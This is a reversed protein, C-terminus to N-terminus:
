YLCYQIGWSRTTITRTRRSCLLFIKKV